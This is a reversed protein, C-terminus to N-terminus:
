TKIGYYEFTDGLNFVRALAGYFTNLPKVNRRLGLKHFFREPHIGTVRVHCRRFGRERLFRALNRPCTDFYHDKPHVQVFRKRDIRSSIGKGNPLACAILGGRKLAAYAREIVKEVDKFHEAVFFFTIVDFSEPTLPADLFSSNIVPLGLQKRAWKAAFGSVEVGTADWGRQKAVDMFFGLACGVDLIRRSHGYTEQESVSSRGGSGKEICREIIDLREGAMKSIHKRDEIYSKGYQAEYESLFYDGKEYIDGPGELEFLFVDSCRRCVM